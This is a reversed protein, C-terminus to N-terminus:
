PCMKGDRPLRVPRTLKFRDFLKSDPPRGTFRKDEPLMTTRSSLKLLSLPSKCSRCNGVKRGRCTSFMELLKNVPNNGDVM